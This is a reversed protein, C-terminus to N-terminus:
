GPPNHVSLNNACPLGTGCGQISFSLIVVAGTPNTVASDDIWHSLTLHGSPTSTGTPGNLAVFGAPGGPAMDATSGCASLKPIGNRGCAEPHNFVLEHLTVQRGAPLATLHNLTYLGVETRQLFSWAHPVTDLTRSDHVAVFGHTGLPEDAAAAPGAFAGLLAAAVLGALVVRLLARRRKREM